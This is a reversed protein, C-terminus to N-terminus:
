LLLHVILTLKSANEPTAIGALRDRTKEVGALAKGASERGKETLAYNEGERVVWGRDELGELHSRLWESFDVGRHVSESYFSGFFGFRRTFAQFQEMIGEVTLPKDLLTMAIGWNEGIDSDWAM